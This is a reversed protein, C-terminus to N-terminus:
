QKITNVALLSMTGDQSNAVYGVMVQADGCVWASTTLLTLALARCFLADTFWNLSRGTARHSESRTKKFYDM